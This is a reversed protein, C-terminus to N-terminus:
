HAWDSPYKEIDPEERVLRITIKVNFRAAMEEALSKSRDINNRGYVQFAWNNENNFWITGLFERRPKGGILGFFYRRPRTVSDPRLIGVSPENTMSQRAVGNSTALVFGKELLFKGVKISPAEEFAVLVEKASM